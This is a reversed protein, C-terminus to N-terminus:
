TVVQEPDDVASLGLCADKENCHFVKWSYPYYPANHLLRYPIDELVQRLDAVPIHLLGLDQRIRYVGALGDVPRRTLYVDIFEPHEHEPPDRLDFGDAVWAALSPALFDAWEIGMGGLDCAYVAGESSAADLFISRDGGDSGILVFTPLKTAIDYNAHWYAIDDVPYLNVWSRAAPVKSDLGNACLLLAVYDPPFTHGVAIEAARIQDLTAPPHLDALPILQECNIM